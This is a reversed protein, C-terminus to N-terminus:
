PLMGKMLHHTVELFPTIVKTIFGHSLLLPLPLLAIVWTTIRVLWPKGRKMLRKQAHIGLAQIMFYLTPGGYGINAPLTLVLEHVLGSVLFVLYLAPWPGLTRALPVLIHRRAPTSFGKNWRQSWLEALEASVLPRDMIPPADIGNNRFILAVLHFTGFHAMGIMGLMGIAGCIVPHVPTASAVALIWATLGLLMIVLARTWEMAQPKPPVETAFFRRADTGPNLFWTFFRVTRMRDVPIERLVHVKLAMWLLLANSWMLPWGELKWSALPILALPILPIWNGRRPAHGLRARCGASTCPRRSSFIRYFWRAATRVGPSRALLRVPMRLPMPYPLAFPIEGGWAVTGEHDIYAPEDPIGALKLHNIVWDTQIPTKSIGM